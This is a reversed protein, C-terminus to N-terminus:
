VGLACPERRGVIGEAVLSDIEERGLGMQELIELSHEGVEPPRRIPRLREGNLRLPISVGRMAAADCAGAAMSGYDFTMGSAVTHPHAALESIAHIPSSPIGAEDLSGLWQARTRTRLIDQVLEVTVARQAVRAAGTAFRPDNAWEPRAVLACFRRWLADNAIGLMMPKDATEFSQYPCLSEHGSGAPRPDVGREWYGQLVYALFSLASDFLSAEVKMGRGTRGQRMLGGLIGIVAHLGTAQDVPSYAARVPPGGEEGTISLMGSFAQLIVDYGKGARLPGVSGFGSISCYVLRPNIAALSAHDIRLREAVGPSFNEIAVDAVRALRHALALGRPSRLDLALSRKNRNVSLFVTGNRGTFPPWARTDDGGEATEIKIVTAGLEGLYQTCLPGALIKSFDLVIVGDLPLDARGPGREVLAVRLAQLSGADGTTTAAEQAGSM